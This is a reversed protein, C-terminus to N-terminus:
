AQAPGEKESLYDLEFDYVENPPVPKLYPSHFSTLLFYLLLPLLFPSKM